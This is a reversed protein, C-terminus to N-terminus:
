KSPDTLLINSFTVSGNTDTVKPDLCYIVYIGTIVTGSSIGASSLTTSISKNVTANPSAITYKTGNSDILQLVTNHNFNDWIYDTSFVWDSDVTIGEHFTMTYYKWGSMGAGRSITFSNASEETGNVLSVGFGTNNISSYSNHYTTAVQSIVDTTDEPVCGFHMNDVYIDAVRKDSSSTNQYKWNFWIKIRRVQALEAATLGATDLDVRHTTWDSAYATRVAGTAGLQNGSADLFYVYFDTYTGVHKITFEFYDYAETDVYSPVAPLNLFTDPWDYTTGGGNNPDSYWHLVNDHGDDTTEMIECIFNEQIQKPKDLSTCGAIVDELVNPAPIIGMQDIYVKQGKTFAMYIRIIQTADFGAPVSLAALDLTAHYWGDGVDELNMVTSASEYGKVDLLQVKMYPTQDGFYVYASFTGSSMDPYSDWAGGPRNTEYQTHFTIYTGSTPEFRLSVTSDDGYTYETSPGYPGKIAGKDLYMNTWDQDVTEGDLVTLGDMYVVAGSKINITFRLCESFDTATNLAVRTTNVQGLYWGNGLSEFKFAEFEIVGNWNKDTAGFTAYPTQDGFYFYASVIKNKFSPLNDNGYQAQVNYYIDNDTSTKNELRISFSSDGYTYEDSIWYLNGSGDSDVTCHILDDEVTEIDVLRVNDIYFAREVGSNSGFDFNFTIIQVSSLNKGELVNGSFDMAVTQWYGPKVTKSIDSTVDSWTGSEHLKTKFVMTKTSDACDFKVDFVLMKGTMDYVYPMAIQAVAEWTNAASTAKFGWSRTSTSGYVQDTVPQGTLGTGQGTLNEWIGPNWSITDSAGLLDGPDEPNPNVPPETPVTPEPETPEPETPDPEIPESIAVNLNDLVLYGDAAADMSNDPNMPYTFYLGTVTMTEPDFGAISSVPTSYTHVGAETHTFDFLDYKNGNSAIIQVKAGSANYNQKIADIELSANTGLTLPNLFYMELDKDGNVIDHSTESRFFMLAKDSEATVDSQFKWGGGTFESLANWNKIYTLEDLLDDREAPISRLGMNDIYIDAAYQASGDNSNQHKWNWHFSIQAIKNFDESSMGLASADVRFTTWEMDYSIRYEGTAGLKAGSADRVTLYMAPYVGVTKIDFELYDYSDTYGTHNMLNVNKTFSVYTESPWNTATGANKSSDAYWHLVNTHGDDTSPMIECVFGDQVPSPKVLGTNAGFFDELPNCAVLNDFWVERLATDNSTMWSPSSGLDTALVIKAVDKLQNATVEHYVYGVAADYTRYTRLDFEYTAYQGGSKTANYHLTQWILEGDSNYLMVFIPWHANQVKMDFRLYPTESLDLPVDYVLEAGGSWVSTGPAAAAYVANTSGNGGETTLMTTCNAGGYNNVSSATGILDYDKSGQLFMNDLLLSDCTYTFRLGNVVTGEDLGMDPISINVARYVICGNVPVANGLLNGDADLAQVMVTTTVPTRIDVKVSAFNTMVKPTEFTYDLVGGTSQVAQNTNNTYGAGYIVNGGTVTADNLLDGDSGEIVVGYFNDWYIGHESVGDYRGEYYDFNHSFRIGTVATLDINKLAALSIIKTTWGEGNPDFNLSGYNAIQEQEGSIFSVALFRKQYSSSVHYENEFLTDFSLHTYGSLDVPEDFYMTTVPYYAYNTTWTKVAQNSDGRVVQNQIVTGYDVPQYNPSTSVGTLKVFTVQDILDDTDYTIKKGDLIAQLETIDRTELISNMDIDASAIYEGPQALIALLAEMDAADIVGDENVDGRRYTALTGVTTIEATLPESRKDFFEQAYAKMLYATGPKLGDITVTYSAEYVDAKDDVHYSTAVRGVAEVEGSTPNCAEVVYGEIMDSFGAPPTLSAAPISVSVSTDTISNIKLEADDAFVPANANAYRSDYAYPRDTVDCADFSWTEGIKVAEGSITNTTNNLAMDNLSYRDVSVQSGSVDMIMVHEIQHNNGAYSNVTMGDNTLGTYNLTATNIVTFQGENGADGQWISREDTLPVHTHANFSVINHYPAVNDWGVKGFDLGYSYGGPVTYAIPCHQVYFIPKDQNDSAVKELLPAALAEEGNQACVFSYGNVTKVFAKEYTGWEEPWYQQSVLVKDHNGYIVILEVYGEEGPKEPFVEYWIDVVKQLWDKQKDISAADTGDSEQLDGAILVADVNQAKFYRLAKEFRIPQVGNYYGTVKGYVEDVYDYSVHIDSIIGVRLDSTDDGKVPAVAETASASIVPAAFSFMMALALILSVIKKSM